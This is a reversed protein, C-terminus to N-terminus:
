KRKMNEKIRASLFRLVNHLPLTAYKDTNVIDDGVLKEFIKIWGSNGGAQRLDPSKPKENEKGNDKLFILPYVDALWQRILLYNLAISERTTKAAQPLVALSQEMLQESFKKGRPLYWAAVFRNLDTESQSAMFDSFYTDAFIFQSFSVKKLKHMPAHLVTKNVTIKEIIFQNHPKLESAWDFCSVINWFHFKSLNRIVKRPLGTVMQMFDNDSVLNDKLRTIAILQEGTIEQWCEPLMVRREHKLPFFSFMPYQVVVEKM